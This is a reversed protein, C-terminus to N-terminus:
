QTSTTAAATLSQLRLQRRYSWECADDLKSHHILEDHSGEELVGGQHLVVFRDANRLTALRHAVAIVTCHLNSFTEQVSNETIADLKSTAEDLILVQPDNLISRAIELRQKEGGSLHTGALNHYGLPTALIFSECNALKAAREVQAMTASRFLAINQAFTFQAIVNPHQPVQAILKRLYRSEFCTAPISDLQISSEWGEGIPRYVGALLHILSSKGSGSKGIIATMKKAPAMFNIRDLAIASTGPYVLSANNFTVGDQLVFGGSIKMDADLQLSPREAVLQEMFQVRESPSVRGIDSSNSEQLTPLITMLEEMEKARKVRSGDGGHARSFLSAGFGIREFINRYALLKGMQKEAHHKNAMLDHPDRSLDQLIMSLVVELGYEEMSMLLFTLVVDDLNTDDLFASGVEWVSRHRANAFESVERYAHLVDLGLTRLTYYRNAQFLKYFSQTIILHRSAGRRLLDAEEGDLYRKVGKVSEESAASVEARERSILAELAPILCCHQSYEFQKRFSVELNSVPHTIPFCRKTALALDAVARLSPARADCLPVDGTDGFTSSAILMLSLQQHPHAQKITGECFKEGVVQLLVRVGCLPPQTPPMTTDLSDLMAATGSQQSFNYSAFPWVDGLGVWPIWQGSHLLGIVFAAIPILRDGKYFQYGLVLLAGVSRGYHEICGKVMWDAVVTSLRKSSSPSCVRQFSPQSRMPEDMQAAIVSLEFSWEAQLEQRITTGLVDIFPSCFARLLMLGTKVWLVFIQPKVISNFADDDSHLSPDHAVNGGAIYQTVSRMAGIQVLQQVLVNAYSLSELFASGAIMGVVSSLVRLQRRRNRIVPGVKGRIVKTCFLRWGINQSSGVSRQLVSITQERFHQEILTSTDTSHHMRKCVPLHLRGLVEVVRAEWESRGFQFLADFPFYSKPLPIGRVSTGATAEQPQVIVRLSVVHMMVTAVRSVLDRDVDCSQALQLPILSETIDIQDLLARAHCQKEVNEGPPSALRQNFFCEADVHAAEEFTKLFTEMQLHLLFQRKPRRHRERINKQWQHLAYALGIMSAIAGGSISLKSACTKDM